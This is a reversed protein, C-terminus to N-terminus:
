GCLTHKRESQGISRTRVEEKRDQHCTGFGSYRGSLPLEVVKMKIDTLNLDEGSDLKELCYPCVNNKKSVDCHFPCDSAKREPLLDALARVATSKATGKEGRILVGGISPNIVNLILANKMENQGVIATFPFVLDSM